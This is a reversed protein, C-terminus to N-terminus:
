FWFSLSCSITISELYHWWQKPIFLLDGSELIAEVYEADKFLPFQQNTDSDGLVSDMDVQSTNTMLGTFLNGSGNLFPYMNSNYQPSYLRIYKKGFIQAYINQYPDTHLPSKTGAPGLWANLQVQSYPDIFSDTNTKREDSLVYCYDPITIDAQLQPMQNFIDHQALYGVDGDKSSDMIYESFFEKISMLKQSWSNDTYKSGIEVPVTRYPGMSSYLYELDKWKAVARWKSAGNKIIIPQPETNIMNHFEMVTLKDVTKIPYKISIDTRSPKLTLKSTPSTFGEPKNLHTEQIYSILRFVTSKGVVYVGSIVIIKDLCLLAEAAIKERDLSESQLELLILDLLCRLLASISYGIRTSESVSKYTVAHLREWFLHDMLYTIDKILDFLSNKDQNFTEIFYICRRWIVLVSPDTVHDADLTKSLIGTSEKCIEFIM